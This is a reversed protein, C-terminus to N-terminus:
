SLQRLQERLPMAEQRTITGRQVGAQINLRLQQLRSQINGGMNQAAAPAGIAIASVAALTMFITKM